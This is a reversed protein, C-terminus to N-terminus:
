FFITRTAQYTLAEGTGSAGVASANYTADTQRDVWSISITYTSPNGTTSQVVSCTSQPLTTSVQNQWQLLDYTALAAPGCAAGAPGCATSTAVAPIPCAYVYNGAVAGSKNAEMREALDSALMVAQTRFQGGQNLKMAYSQLGSTGLLALSILLMTVLVEIL